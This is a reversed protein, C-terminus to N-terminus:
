ADFGKRRYYARVQDDNLMVLCVIGLVCNIIDPIVISVIMLIALTKPPGQDDRGLMNSGRVIGLIGIVIGYYVGPWFCFCFGSGAIWGLSILVSRIGGVLMMIAVAQVQGPRENRKRRPRDDYDDEYREKHRSVRPRDDDDDMEDRRRVERRSPRDDEDDDRRGRRSPRDDEDADRRGRRSPRDGEDDDRRSRRSPRDAEEPEQRQQGKPFFIEVTKAEVWDAMGDRWVLDTPKLQGEAALRQLEAEPVPGQRTDGVSYFWEANM